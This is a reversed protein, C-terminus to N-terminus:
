RVRRFLAFPPIAGTHPLPVREYHARLYHVVPDSDWSVWFPMVVVYPTRRTELAQIAEAIQEPTSYGPKLVQYRTPNEAGVLLYLSAYFPYGFVERVPADRLQERLVDLLLVENRDNFDIRGIPTDARVPSMAYRLHLDLVLLALVGGALAGLLASGALEGHPRRALWALGAELRDAAAVLGIPAVYALHPLDPVYAVSLLAAAGLLGFALRTRAVQGGPGRATGWLGSAFSLPILLPLWTTLRPAIDGVPYPVHMGWWWYRHYDRYGGLPFRVLAEAMPGPGATALLAGFVPVIVAVIGAVYRGLTRALPRAPAGARRALAADLLLVVGVAPAIVLGKQHQTAILLGVLLGLRGPRAGGPPRAAVWLIAMTLAAGPWHPTAHPMAMYALAPHTLAALFAVARRVGLERATAYILLVILAHCMAMLARGVLFSVGFLKFGVALLYYALPASIEFFDRYFVDGRLIRKAEYLFLGEDFYYLDRPWLAAYAFVALVLAAALARDTSVARSDAV